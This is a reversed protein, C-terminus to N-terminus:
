VEYSSQSNPASMPHGLIATASMKTGTGHTGSFDALLRLYRKKGVYGYSPVEVDAAAKAAILSRLIGGAGFTQGPPMIVDDANVAAYTVNDDSATLVFEVKNTTTFTIGGIGVNIPITVSKFGLTDLVVPTNDAAYVDPTILSVTKINSKLDYDAM